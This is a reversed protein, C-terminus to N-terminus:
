SLSHNSSEDFAVMIVDVQEVGPLNELWTHLDRSGKVSQPDCAIPLWRDNLTGIEIDSRLSIEAVANEASQRDSSLTLMLGNISMNTGKRSSM